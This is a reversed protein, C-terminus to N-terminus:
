ARRAPRYRRHIRIVEALAIFFDVPRVKSGPVDCWYNVPLERVSEDIAPGGNERRLKTLRALIEVDFTWNVCFPERFLERVEGTARFLKAGCQTDYVAMNLTLSATTAFIRGFYHRVIRRQINRGLLKVRAGIVIDCKPHNKFIELFIPIENLPTALDGDWFGVFRPNQAFALLMGRRVAEAKGANKPLDLAQAQNPWKASLARLIKPTDDTSGDNVFIFGVEPHEALFESFAGPQFRTSENHCPVVVLISPTPFPPSM